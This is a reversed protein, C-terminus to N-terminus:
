SFMGPFDVDFDCHEDLDSVLQEAAKKQSEAEESEEDDQSGWESVVDRAAQLLSQANSLRTSRGPARGKRTPRLETTKVVLKALFEPVDPEDTHNELEDAAEGYRQCKDTHGLNGGEMNDYGERMEEALSQFESFADGIAAAVTTEVPVSKYSKSM